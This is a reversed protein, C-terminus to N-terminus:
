VMMEWPQNILAISTNLISTYKEDYILPKTAAALM